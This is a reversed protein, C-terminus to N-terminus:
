HFLIIRGGQLITLIRVAIESPRNESGILVVGQSVTPPVDRALQLHFVFVGTFVLCWLRKDHNLVLVMFAPESPEKEWKKKGISMETAM